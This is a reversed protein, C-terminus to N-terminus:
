PPVCDPTRTISGGQENYATEGRSQCSTLKAVSNSLLYYGIQNTDTVCGRAAVVAGSYAMVGCSANRHINCSLLDICTGKGGSEAGTAQTSRYSGSTCQKLSATAGSGAAIGSRRNDQLRCGSAQM